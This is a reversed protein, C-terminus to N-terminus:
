LVRFKALDTKRLTERGRGVEGTQKSKRESGVSLNVTDRLSVAVFKSSDYNFLLFSLHHNNHTPPHQQHHNPLGLANCSLKIITITIIIVLIGM